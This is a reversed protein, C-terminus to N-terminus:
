FDLEVLSLRLRLSQPHWFSNRLGVWKEVLCIHNNFALTQPGCCSPSQVPSSPDQLPPHPAPQSCLAQGAKGQLHPTLNARFITTSCLLPHPASWATLPCPSRRRLIANPAQTPPQGARSKAAVTTGGSHRLPTPSPPYFSFKILVYTSKFHLSSGLGIATM